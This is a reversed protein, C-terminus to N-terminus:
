VALKAQLSRTSAFETRLSDTPKSKIPMFMVLATSYNHKVRQFTRMLRQSLLFVQGTLLIGRIHINEDDREDTKVALDPYGQLHPNVRFVAFRM